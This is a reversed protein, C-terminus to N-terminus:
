TGRWSWLVYIPRGLSLLSTLIAQKIDKADYQCKFVLSNCKFDLVIAWLKELYFAPPDSAGM